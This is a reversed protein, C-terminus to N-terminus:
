QTLILSKVGELCRTLATLFALIFDPIIPLWITDLSLFVMTLSMLLLYLGAQFLEGCLLWTSKQFVENTM